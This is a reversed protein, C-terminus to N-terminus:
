GGRGQPALRAARCWPAPLHRPGCLDTPGATPWALGLSHLDMPALPPRFVDPGPLDTPGIAPSTLDRSWVPGPPLPRLSRCPDPAACPAAAAAAWFPPVYGGPAEAAIAEIRQAFSRIAANNKRKRAVHGGRSSRRLGPAAPAEASSPAAPEELAPAGDWDEQWAGGLDKAPAPRPPRRGAEDLRLLASLLEVPLEKPADVEEQIRRNPRLDAVLAGPWPPSTAMGFCGLHGPSRPAACMRAPIRSREARM